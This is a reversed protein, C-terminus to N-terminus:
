LNGKIYADVLRQVEKKDVERVGGKPQVRPDVYGDESDVIPKVGPGSGRGQTLVELLRGVAEGTAKLSPAAASEPDGGEASSATEFVEKGEEGDIIEFEAEQVEDLGEFPDGATAQDSRGIAGMMRDFQEPSMSFGGTGSGGIDNKLIGRGQLLKIAVRDQNPKAKHTAPIDAELTRRIVQISLKTTVDLQAEVDELLRERLRARITQVIKQGHESDVIRQCTKVVFGVAKSIEVIPVGAAYLMAVRDHRISWHAPASTELAVSSEAM